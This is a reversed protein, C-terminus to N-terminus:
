VATVDAGAIRKLSTARLVAMFSLFVIYGAFQHLVDPAGLGFLYM